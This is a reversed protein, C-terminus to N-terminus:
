SLACKVSEPYNGILINGGVKRNSGSDRFETGKQLTEMIRKLNKDAISSNHKVLQAVAFAISEECNWYKM